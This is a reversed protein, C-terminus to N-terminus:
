DSCKLRLGGQSLYFLGGCAAQLAAGVGPRLWYVPIGDLLTSVSIVSSLTRTGAEWPGYRLMVLAGAPLM